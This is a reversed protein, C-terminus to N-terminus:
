ESEEARLRVYKGTRPVLELSEWENNWEYTELIFPQDASLEMPAPHM